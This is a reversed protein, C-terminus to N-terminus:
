TRVGLMSFCNNISIVTARIKPHPCFQGAMPVSSCNVSDPGPLIWNLWCSEQSCVHLNATTEGLGVYCFCGNLSDLEVASKHINSNIESYKVCHLDHWDKWKNCMSWLCLFNCLFKFEGAAKIQCLSQTSTWFPKPNKTYVKHWEPHLHHRTMSNFVLLVTYIDCSHSDSYFLITNFFLASKLQMWFFLFFSRAV